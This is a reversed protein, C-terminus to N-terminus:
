TSHRTLRKRCTAIKKENADKCALEALRPMYWAICVFTLGIEADYRAQSVMLPARRRESLRFAACPELHKLQMCNPQAVYQPSFEAGTEARVQRDHHINVGESDGQAGNLGWRGLVDGDTAEFHVRSTAAIAM